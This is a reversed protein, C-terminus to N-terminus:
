ARAGRFVFLTSPGMCCNNVANCCAGATEAELQGKELSLRDLTRRALELSKDRAELQQRLARVKLRLDTVSAEQREHATLLTGFDRSIAASKRRLQVLESSDTTGKGAARQRYKVYPEQLLLRPPPKHAARRLVLCPAKGLPGRRVKLSNRHDALRSSMIITNCGALATAPQLQGGDEFGDLLRAM